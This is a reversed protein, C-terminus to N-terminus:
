KPKKKSSVKKKAKKKKKEILDDPFAAKPLARDAGDLIRRIADGRQKRDKIGQFDLVKKLRGSLYKKKREAVLRAVNEPLPVFSEEDAIEAQRFGQVAATHVGRCFSCEKLHAPEPVSADFAAKLTREIHDCGSLEMNRTAALGGILRRYQDLKLRCRECDSLHRKARGAPDVGELFAVLDISDCSTM